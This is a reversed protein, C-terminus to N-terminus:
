SSARLLLSGKRDFMGGNSVRQRGHGDRVFQRPVHHNHITNLVAVFSHIYLDCNLNSLQLSLGVWFPWAAIDVRRFTSLWWVGLSRAAGRRFPPVGAAEDAGPLGGYNHPFKSLCVRAKGKAYRFPGGEGGLPAALRKADRM